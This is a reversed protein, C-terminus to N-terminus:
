VQRPFTSALANALDERSLRASLAAQRILIWDEATQIRQKNKPVICKNLIFTKIDEAYQGMIEAEKRKHGIFAYYLDYELWDHYAQSGKRVKNKAIEPKVPPIVPPVYQRRSVTGGLDVEEYFPGPPEEILSVEDLDFLGLVLVDCIEGDSLIVTEEMSVRPKHVIFLLGRGM